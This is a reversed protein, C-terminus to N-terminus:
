SSVGRRLVAQGVRVVDGEHVRHYALGASAPTLLVVTSGLHFVGLEQGKEVRQGASVSATIRGVNTAGVMVLAV